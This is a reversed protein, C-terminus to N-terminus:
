RWSCARDAVARGLEELRGIGPPLDDPAGVSGAPDQEAVRREHERVDDPRREEHESM